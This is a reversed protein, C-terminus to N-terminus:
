KENGANSGTEHQDSIGALMTEFRLGRSAKVLVADGSGLLASRSNRFWDVLREKDTFVRARNSDSTQGQELFGQVMEAAFEGVAALEDIDIRAAFRGIEYHAMASGKGLELMDGLVAIAKGKSLQRLTKLGAKMSAPNANYTDNIVAFGSTSYIIEMRKDAPRFDALGMAILELKIGAAVAIAAACLANSINHEGAISLKVAIARDGHNLIFSSSGGEELIINDAWIDASTDPSSGACLAFTVKKQAYKAAFESIRCDDLNIILTGESRTAAFLEEKAQVVGEISGLGLLHAGHINTICSIDPDAIEALRGIEGRMNMGMELIAARQQVGIPLLSLPLGILNNFNGRTKLVAGEPYDLGAPWQRNFVAAVMEKVTTKGCSGTIGVVLQEVTGALARRRFLAMDGLARLSDNVLVQHIGAPPDAIKKEVVLCIAGNEVAQLLYDHADHNDGKLAVFIGGDTKERSDTVVRDLLRTSGDGPYIKGATARAVLEATWSCLADEAQKRDDFYKRGSATLQYPEHGKGAIVVIDEPAASQIATFIAEKRDPIVLCCRQGAKRQALQNKEILAVGSSGVGELIQAIIKQPDESRPNDDTVIVVDCLAAATAGMIPRKGGDRDGGCGFICYLTGSSVERASKLVQTLADPTHAYDVLVIPGNSLWNKGAAVREVRGPAGTASCLATAIHKDEVGLARCVAFATLINDINYRGVLSTTIRYKKNGAAIDISTQDAGQRFGQLQVEAQAGDGWGIVRHCNKECLETLKQLWHGNEKDASIEPLVAVGRTELHESFLRMKAQFYDDMDQHYDLHDRSLNTFAAVGLRLTAVREQTLAHSSVEMILHTVGQDVMQRLLGHLLMPEPTTFRTPLTTQKGDVDTYRNNVTGIVGCSIGSQTLVHEVLYTVTTKGNTGTIGSIQLKKAPCGYFSAAVAGYARATDAVEVVVASAALCKQLIDPSLEGSNVLLARCGADVAETLYSHGDNQLGKLAVFLFDRGVERSDSSVGMLKIEELILGERAIIKKEAIGELLSLLGIKTM